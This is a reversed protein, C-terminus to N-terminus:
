EYMDTFLILPPLSPTFSEHLQDGVTTFHSQCKRCVYLNNSDLFKVFKKPM